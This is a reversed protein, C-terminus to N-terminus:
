LTIMLLALLDTWLDLADHINLTEDESLHTKIGATLGVGPPSVMYLHRHSVTKFHIKKYQENAFDRQFGIVGIDLGLTVTFRPGVTM